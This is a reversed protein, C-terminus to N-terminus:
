AGAADYRSAGARGPLIGFYELTKVAEDIQPKPAPSLPPRVPGSAMGVLGTLYKTLAINHNGKSLYRSHLANAMEVIPQLARGAKGLDGEDIAKWYNACYPRERTQMYMPRSNGLLFDPTLQPFACRGFYHYEELPSSIAIKDGAAQLMNTYGSLSLSVEKVACINDIAALRLVAEPTLFHGLEPLTTSYICMGIDIREAVYEYYAQVGEETRVGYYPPWVMVLDAGCEQAHRALSVTDRASTHNCGVIVPKRGDVAEIVVETVRRKEADTMTWFEQYISNLYIGNVGPLALLFDVNHALGGWDIEGSETMPTTTVALHGKLNAKAWKKSDSTAYKM